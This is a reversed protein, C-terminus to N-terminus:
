YLPHVPELKMERDLVIIWLEYNKKLGRCAAASEAIDESGSVSWWLIDSCDSPRTVARYDNQPVVPLNPRLHYSLVNQFSLTRITSSTQASYRLYM